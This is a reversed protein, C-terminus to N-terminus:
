PVRLRRHRGRPHRGQHAQGPRRRLQGTRRRRLCALSLRHSRRRFQGLPGAHYGGPAILAGATDLRGGVDMVIGTFTIVIPAASAVAMASLLAAAPLFGKQM